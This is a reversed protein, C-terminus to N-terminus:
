QEARQGDNVLGTMVHLIQRNWINCSLGLDNESEPGSHRARLKIVKSAKM